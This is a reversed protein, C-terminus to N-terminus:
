RRGITQLVETLVSFDITEAAKLGPKFQGIRLLRRTRM